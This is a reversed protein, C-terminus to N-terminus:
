RTLKRSEIQSKVLDVVKNTFIEAGHANLHTGDVFLSDNHVFLTDSQFDAFAINNKKCFDEILSVDYQKRGYWFPSAVFVTVVDDGLCDVFRQLYTIKLSDVDWEPVPGDERSKRIKMSDFEEKIPKYGFLKDPKYKVKSASKFLAKPNHVYDTNYRYLRSMMKIPETSDVDHFLTSLEPAKSYYPKLAHIQVINDSKEIDYGSIDCIVVKPKHNKMVMMLRGYSLLIGCGDQGLNYCSMGLSDSLIKTDYHHRARSSGFVLIDETMSNCIYNNRGVSGDTMKSFWMDFVSGLVFDGAVMLALFLLAKVFFKKMDSIRM